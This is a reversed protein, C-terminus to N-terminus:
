VRDTWTLVCHSEIGVNQEEVIVIGLVARLGGGAFM